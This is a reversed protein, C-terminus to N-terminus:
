KLTLRELDFLGMKSLRDLLPVGVVVTALVSLVAELPTQFAGEVFAIPLFEAPVGWIEYGNLPILIFIRTLVDAEISIFAILALILSLKAMRHVNGDIKVSLRKGYTLAGFISVCILAAYIDWLTWLPLSPTVPHLFFAILMLAYILAVHRWKRRVMLGACLAGVPEAIGFFIPEDRPRLTWGAGFGIFGAMFGRTPGLIIGELPLILIMLSRWIGPVFSLVTHLAGFLSILAIEQSRRMATGM